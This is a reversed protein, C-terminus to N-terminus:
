FNTSEVRRLWGKLFVALDPNHNVLDKYFYKRANIYKETIGTDALLAKLTFKGIVGDTDVGLTYQLLKVAKNLGANVAMDFVHLKLLGDPLAHLPDFFHKKYLVGAQVPTLKIIDDADIDGDGDIDIGQKRLFRLSIGYKTIGGPDKPHNSLGGEHKLIVKLYDNFNM